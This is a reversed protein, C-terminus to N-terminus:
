AQNQAVLAEHQAIIKDKRVATYEQLKMPKPGYSILSADNPRRSEQSQRDRLRRPM